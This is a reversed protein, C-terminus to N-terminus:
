INFAYEWTDLFTCSSFWKLYFIKNKNYIAALYSFSSGAIVLIDANCMHHFTTISDIDLHFKINDIKKLDKYKLFINNQSFIHINHNPYINKFKCILMVYKEPSIDFRGSLNQYQEYCGPQANEDCENLVRIHIAINQKDKDFLYTQSKNNYVDRIDNQIIKYYNPVNDVIGFPHKLLYINDLNKVMDIDNISITDLNVIQKNTRTNEDDIEVISKISKINFIEDWKENWQPDNDYNHGVTIKKHIYKLDHKKAIGLMGIIRQYQAGVGEDTMEYTISM